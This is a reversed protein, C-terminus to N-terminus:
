AELLEPDSRDGRAFPSRVPRSGRFIGIAMGRLYAAWALPQRWVRTVNKRLLPGHRLSAWFLIGFRGERVGYRVISLWINASEIWAPWELLRCGGRPARMHVLWWDPDYHIRFGAKRVRQGFEVDEGFATGEFQEDYGGLAIAVDRRVAHCGFLLVHEDHFRDYDFQAFCTKARNSCTLEEIAVGDHRQFIGAQLCVVGPREFSKVCREVFDGPLLVDDDVFVVVDCATESLIQNRAATLSPRAGRVWRVVGKGERVAGDPREETEGQDCVIIEAPQM